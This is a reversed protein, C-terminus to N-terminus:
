FVFGYLEIRRTQALHKVHGLPWVAIQNLSPLHTIWIAWSGCGPWNARAEDGGDEMWQAYAAMARFAHGGDIKEDAKEFKVRDRQRIDGGFARSLFGGMFSDDATSHSVFARRM